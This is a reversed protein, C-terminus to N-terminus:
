EEVEFTIDLTAGFLVGNADALRWSSTYPGDGGPATVSVTLETWSGVSVTKQIKTVGAGLDTGGVLVLSYQPLWNCTGNNEVKWTKFFDEHPELVTGDPITVDRVFALNNCGAGLAGPNPTGTTLTGAAITGFTATPFVYYVTATASPLPTAPQTPTPFPTQTVTSTPSPPTYMATQTGFFSAVMTGVSETMIANADPTPEASGACAALLLALSIQITFLKSNLPMRAEVM